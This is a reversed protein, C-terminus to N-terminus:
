KSNLDAFNNERLGANKFATKRKMKANESRGKISRGGM